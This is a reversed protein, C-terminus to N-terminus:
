LLVARVVNMCRKAAAKPLPGYTQQFPELLIGLILLKLIRIDLHSSMSSVRPRDGSARECITLSAVM